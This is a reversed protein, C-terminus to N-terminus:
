EIKNKSQIKMNQNKVHATNEVLKWLHKIDKRELNPYVFIFQSDEVQLDDNLIRQLSEEDLYMNDFPTISMNLNSAVTGTIHVDDIWFYPLKQAELYLPLVSDASYLISFGPCSKPFYRGSYESYTVRWKSRYSRKVKAREIMHCYILRNRQLQQHLPLSANELIRFLLPLNVFVDDDTKLLFHAKPCEYVFWKFAMVHKYTINRYSDHFNGQVMDANIQNELNLKHQLTSSNVNGLLFLLLSRSDYKGWTERITQRKHFNDPASHILVVVVPPKVLDKCTKPNMRYEFNELDILKEHDNKPLTNLQTTSLSSVTSDTETSSISPPEYYLTENSITPYLQEQQQQLMIHWVSVCLSIGILLSMLSRLDMITTVQETCRSKSIKM